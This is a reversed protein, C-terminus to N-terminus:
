LTLKLVVLAVCLFGTEFCVCVCLRFVLRFHSIFNMNLVSFLCIYIMNWVGQIAIANPSLGTQHFGLCRTLLHVGAEM